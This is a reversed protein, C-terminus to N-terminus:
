PRRLDKIRDDKLGIMDLTSIFQESTSLYGSCLGCLTAFAPILPGSPKGTGGLWGSPSHGSPTVPIGPDLSVLSNYSGDRWRSRSSITLQHTGSITCSAKMCYEYRTLFPTKLFNQKFLCEGSYTTKGVNLYDLPFGVSNISSRSPLSNM